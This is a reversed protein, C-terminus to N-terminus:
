ESADILPYRRWHLPDDATWTIVQQKNPAFGNGWGISVLKWYSWLSYM